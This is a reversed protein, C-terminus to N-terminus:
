SPSGASTRPNGSAAKDIYQEPAKDFRHKCQGSCFHYVRGGYSAEHRAMERGIEM